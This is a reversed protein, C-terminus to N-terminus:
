SMKWPRSSPPIAPRCNGTGCGGPSSKTKKLVAGVTNPAIAEVVALEVLAEGLLRLSWRKTGPPHPGCALTLLTAEGAGDLKRAYARRPTQRALTAALGRDCFEARVRAVTRSSVEVAEAIQQDTWRRARVGRDAKLLIRARALVRASASGARILQDLERREATTLRVLHQRRPM